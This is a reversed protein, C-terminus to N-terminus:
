VSEFRRALGVIGVGSVADQKAILCEDRDWEIGHACWLM